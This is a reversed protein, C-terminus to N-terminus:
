ENISKKWFHKRLITHDVISIFFITAEIPYFLIFAYFPSTAPLWWRSSIVWPAEFRFTSLCHSIWGDTIRILISKRSFQIEITSVWQQHWTYSFLCIQKLWNHVFIVKPCIWILDLFDLPNWHSEYWIQIQIQVCRTKAGSPGQDRPKRGLGWRCRVIVHPGIKMCFGPFLHPDFLAESFRLWILARASPVLKRSKKGSQTMRAEWSRTKLAPKRSLWSEYYSLPNKQFYHLFTIQRLSQVAWLM